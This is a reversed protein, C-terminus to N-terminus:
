RKKVEIAKEYIRMLGAYHAELRYEREVRERGRKGMEEAVKPTLRLIADELEPASGPRVLFGTEHDLITEPLAGINSAIVPKGAAMAELVILGFVEYWLSPVVVCRAGRYLAQLDEGTRFGIFEVNPLRNAYEHLRAADPGTGVIKFRTDPMRRAADILVFLGKEEVLRGVYLIYGDNDYRPAVSQADIGFPLVDIKEKGFGKRVLMDRVFVSSTVYRDVSQYLRFIRHLKFVLSAAFSAALSNKHFRSLTASVINADAWDEVKGHSWMMYQPSIMHYDHVTMVTPVRHRSLTTLFSPSLQYYINHIHCLDPRAGEILRKMKREAEFSYVMRGFTRMGQWDLTVRETQVESVFYKAYPTNLNNPHKMAFPIVKHGARELAFSLDLLYREAGGQLFYYKNAQIIRM